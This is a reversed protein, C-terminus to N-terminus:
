KYLSLNKEIVYGEKDFTLPREGEINFMIQDENALYLQCDNHTRMQGLVDIIATGPM